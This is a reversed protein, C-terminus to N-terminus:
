KRKENETWQGGFRQLHDKLRAAAEHRKRRNNKKSSQNLLKNCEEDMLVNVSTYKNPM